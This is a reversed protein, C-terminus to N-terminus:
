TEGDPLAHILAYLPILFYNEGFHWMRLKVQVVVFQEVGKQTIHIDPM